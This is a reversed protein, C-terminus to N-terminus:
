GHMEALMKMEKTSAQGIEAWRELASETWIMGGPIKKGAPFIGDRIWRRITAASCGFMQAVEDIRYIKMM